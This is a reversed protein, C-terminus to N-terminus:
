LSILFLMDPDSSIVFKINTSRHMMTCNKCYFIWCSAVTYWIKNDRIKFSAWCMEPSVSGMMLLRYSWLCGRTKCVHFTIPRSTTPHQWTYAVQCPGVVAHGVVKWPIICFWLSSTCNWAGSSPWYTVRFMNSKM